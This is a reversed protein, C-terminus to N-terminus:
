TEVRIAPARFMESRLANSSASKSSKLWLFLRGLADEEDLQHAPTIQFCDTDIQKPQYIIKQGFQKSYWNSRQM